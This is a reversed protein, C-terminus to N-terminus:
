SRKEVGANPFLLEGLQKRLSRFDVPKSIYADFGAALVSERNGQMALATIAVVPIRQLQEDQRLQEIVAYGDLLPMQLDMLVLNPSWQRAKAVTEAGNCAELVDFGWAALFERIMERSDANDDGVLIKMM